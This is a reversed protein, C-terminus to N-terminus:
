FPAFLTKGSVADEIISELMVFFGVSACVSLINSRGSSNWKSWYSRNAIIWLMLQYTSYDLYVWDVLSHISHFYKPLYM